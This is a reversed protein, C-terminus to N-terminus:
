EQKTFDIFLMAQCAAQGGHKMIGACRFLNTMLEVSQNTLPHETDGSAIFIEVVMLGQAIILGKLCRETFLIRQCALRRQAPHLLVGIPLCYHLGMLQQPMVENFLMVFWWLLDHQVKIAGVDGHMALLGALEKVTIVIVM